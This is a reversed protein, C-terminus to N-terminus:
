PMASTKACLNATTNRGAIHIHMEAESHISNMRFTRCRSASSALMLRTTTVPIPITEDIPFLVVFRRANRTEISPSNFPNFELNRRRYFLGGDGGDESVHIGLDGRQFFLEGFGALELM